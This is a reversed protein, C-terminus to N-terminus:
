ESRFDALTPRDYEGPFAEVSVQIQDGSAMEKLTLEDNELDQEGVIVVTEANISDAYDLQAGFGRGAVDGEVIHGRERLQRAVKAAVPRTDGVQLVYYDTTFEEAPWVGARELLLPLTSNMVGPAVGVAPMEPGGYSEILDDYRGGGFIARSIEGEADFCEFVVGTYYDLGRATELSVDCYERVGYDDAASLVAQLNEVASEVSDTFAVLEGLDDNGAALLDVFTEAQDGDLGADELLRLYEHRDVKESKDVARIAARVDVDGDFSRLLEGLIDRHSVRFEFDDATLGLGTLTDAGFALIEADAAPDSAGFIDVNTQYFERFRGQQPEEYRWFPRTSFWKIPKALEQSRGAVMRAVTPTLEPTLAVHRGGKDEFAYLEEVIEEGSKEIYMEAPEMAPTEIERFGYGRATDEVTDIVERYATMEEPYVESFGKIGDYM